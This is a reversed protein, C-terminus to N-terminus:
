CGMVKNPKKEKITQNLTKDENYGWVWLSNDKKIALAFYDGYTFFKVSEMIKKPKHRENNSGDGLIYSDNYGWTWLSGDNNIAVNSANDGNFFKVNEMIKVPDKRNGWVWLSGNNKIATSPLYFSKVDSLVEKPEYNEEKSMSKLDDNKVWTWLSNDNKIFATFESEYAKKVNDSIKQPISYSIGCSTFLLIVTLFLM